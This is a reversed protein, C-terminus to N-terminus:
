PFVFVETDYFDYNEATDHPFTFDFGILLTDTGTILEAKTNLSYSLIFIIMICYKM